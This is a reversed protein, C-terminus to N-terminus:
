YITTLNIVSNFEMTEKYLLELFENGQNAYYYSFNETREQWSNKPFIESYLNEFNSVWEQHKLREAKYFRKNIKELGNLQKKQQAFIMNKWSSDTQQSEELLDDFINKLRNEYGPFDFKVTSNHNVLSFIIEEKPVFLNEEKWQFKEMKTKQNETILLFSNRPILIPFPLKQSDFYDKLELWYAIEANGGIYAVNPLILEQYVPRLLANPSFKEPNNEIESLIEEQSFNKCTGLIYYKGNTEDIRNREQNNHYFFNIKRPNVQIKYDPKLKEITQSIVQNSKQERIDDQIYPIFLKKLAKSNGDIFLLGYSKFLEHVLVRTADALNKESFYSKEIITRLEKGKPFYKLEEYFRSLTQKLGSTSIDGTFDKHEEKWETKKGKFYFHNIEEFDHDETAIWFMPVFNIENQQKNLSDCLKITHLIKYIFYLPGTMLNLQHGTTVTVTNDLSLKHLNDQQKESLSLNQLQLSLEQVLEKRYTYQSLKEKAQEIMNDQTFSRHYFPVVSKNGTLYDKILLSTQPIEAINIHNRM